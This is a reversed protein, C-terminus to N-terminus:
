TKKKRNTDDEVEMNRESSLLFFNGEFDFEHTDSEHKATTLHHINEYRYHLYNTFNLLSKMKM